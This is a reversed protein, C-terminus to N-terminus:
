SYGEKEIQASIYEVQKNCEERIEAYLNVLDSVSYVAAFAEQIALKLEDTM